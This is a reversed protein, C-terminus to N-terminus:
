KKKTELLKRAMHLSHVDTGACDYFGRSRLWEAKQRVHRGYYGSLSPLNLQFEAGEDKLRRYDDREMYMYREPHALVPTYGCKEIRRLTDYLGMPPNFYSTEVLLRDAKTGVPLLEGTELRRDFLNDLMNESGLHLRLGGTYVALLEDFRRRLGEATNPMDEMIHPTLWVEAAGAQEYLSLIELAEDMTQVGDDVAPLIHSHMDAFGDGFLPTKGATHKGFPWM